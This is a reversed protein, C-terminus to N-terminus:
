WSQSVARDGTWFEWSQQCSRLEDDDRLAEGEETQYETVSTVVVPSM